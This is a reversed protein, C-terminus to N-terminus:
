LDRRRRSRQGALMKFGYKDLLSMYDSRFGYPMDYYCYYYKNGSQHDFKLSTVNELMPITTSGYYYFKSTDVKMQAINIYTATVLPVDSGSYTKTGECKGYIEVIDGDLYATTKPLVVYISDDYGFNLKTVQVVLVTSTFASGIDFVDIVQGRFFLNKGQYDYPSRLLDDYIVSVCSPKIAQKPKKRKTQSM